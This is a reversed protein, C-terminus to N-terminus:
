GERITRVLKTWWSSDAPLTIDGSRAFEAEADALSAFRTKLLSVCEKLLNDIESEFANDWFGKSSLHKILAAKYAIWAPTNSTDCLEVLTFPVERRVVMLEDWVKELRFRHFAGITSRVPARVAAVLTKGVLLVLVILSIMAIIFGAMGWMIAAMSLVFVVFLLAVSGVVAGVEVVDNTTDKAHHMVAETAGVAVGAAVKEADRAHEDEDHRIIQDAGLALVGGLLSGAIDGRILERARDGLTPEKQKTATKAPAAVEKPAALAKLEAVAAEILALKEDAPLDVPAAVANPSGKDTTMGIVLDAIAAKKDENLPTLLKRFERVQQGTEIVRANLLALALDGPKANKLISDVLAM